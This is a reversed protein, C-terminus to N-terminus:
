KAAGACIAHAYAHRHEIDSSHRLAQSTECAQYLMKANVAHYVLRSSIVLGWEIGNM